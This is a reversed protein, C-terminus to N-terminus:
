WQSQSATFSKADFGMTPIHMEQQLVMDHCTRLFHTGQVRVWGQNESIPGPIKLACGLFRSSSEEKSLWSPGPVGGLGM